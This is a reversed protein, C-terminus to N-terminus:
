DVHLFEQEPMSEATLRAKGLFMTRMVKLLYSQFYEALNDYEDADMGSCTWVRPEKGEEDCVLYTANQPVVRNNEHAKL